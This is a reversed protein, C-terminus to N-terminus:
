SSQCVKGVTSCRFNTCRKQIKWYIITQTFKLGLLCSFYAWLLYDKKAFFNLLSFSNNLRIFSDFLPSPIPIVFLNSLSVETMSSRFHKKVQRFISKWHAFILVFSITTNLSIKCTNPGLVRASSFACLDISLRCLYAVFFNFFTRLYNFSRDESSAFLTKNWMSKGLSSEIFSSVTKHPNM